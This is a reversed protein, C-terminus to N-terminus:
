LIAQLLSEGQKTYVAHICTNEHCSSLEAVFDMCVITFCNDIFLPYFYDILINNCNVCVVMNYINCKCKDCM